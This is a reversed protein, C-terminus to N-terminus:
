DWTRASFPYVTVTFVWLGTSAYRILRYGFVRIVSSLIEKLSDSIVAATKSYVFWLQLVTSVTSQKLLDPPSSVTTVVITTLTNHRTPFTTTLRWISPCPRLCRKYSSLRGHNSTKIGQVKRSQRNDRLSIADPCIHFIKSKGKLFSDSYPSHTRYDCKVKNISVSLYKSFIPSPGNKPAKAFSHFAVRLKTMDARGDTRGDARM